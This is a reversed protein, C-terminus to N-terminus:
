SSRGLEPLPIMDDKNLLTQVCNMTTVMGIINGMQQNAVANYYMLSNAQNAAATSEIAALSPGTGLVQVIAEGLAMARDATAPDFALTQIETLLQELSSYSNSM